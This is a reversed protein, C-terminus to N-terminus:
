KRGKIIEDITDKIDKLGEDDTNRVYELFYDGMFDYGFVNVFLDTFEKDDLEEQKEMVYDYLEDYTLKNDNM